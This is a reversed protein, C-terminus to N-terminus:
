QSLVITMLKSFLVSAVRREFLFARFCQLFISSGFVCIRAHHITFHFCVKTASNPDAGKNIFLTIMALHGRKCAIHLPASGSQFPINSTPSPISSCTNHSHPVSHSKDGMEIEMERHKQRKRWEKKKHIDRKQELCCFYVKSAANLDAGKNLLLTVVDLHGNQCATSLSTFGNQVPFTLSKHHPHQLSLHAHITLNKSIYSMVQQWRWRETNPRKREQTNRKTGKQQFFIFVFGRLQMSILEKTSSFLLWKLIAMKAPLICHSLGMRCLSNTIQPSLKPFTGMEMEKDREEREKEQNQFKEKDRKAWLFWFVFLFRPQQTSIWEKTSSFFSWKLIARRVPLM